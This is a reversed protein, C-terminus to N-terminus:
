DNKELDMKHRALAALREERWKRMEGLKDLPVEREMAEKVVGLTAGGLERPPAQSNCVTVINAGYRTCYDEIGNANLHMTAFPGMFSYRLGLGHSMATDIDEPSAIGDQLIVHYM